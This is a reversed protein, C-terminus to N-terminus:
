DSTKWEIGGELSLMVWLKELVCVARYGMGLSFFVEKDMMRGLGSVFLREMVSVMLSLNAEEQVPLCWRSLFATMIKTMEIM